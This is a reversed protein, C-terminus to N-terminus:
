GPVVFANEEQLNPICKDLPAHPKTCIRSAEESTCWDHYEWCSSGLVCCCKVSDLTYVRKTCTCFAYQLFPSVLLSRRPTSHPVNRWKVTKKSRTYVQIRKRRSRGFSFLYTIQKNDWVWMWARFDIGFYSIRWWRKIQHVRRRAHYRFTTEVVLDKLFAFTHGDGNLQVWIKRTVGYIESGISALPKLAFNLCNVENTSITQIQVIVYCSSGKMSYNHRLYLTRRIHLRSNNQRNHTGQSGVGNRLALEIREWM